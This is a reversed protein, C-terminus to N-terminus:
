KPTLKILLISLPAFIFCPTWAAWFPSFGAHTAFVQSIQMLMVFSFTIVLGLLIHLGTGQRSKRSSVCLGVITLIVTAFPFAIRRHKEFEYTNVALSGKEREQKIFKRIEIYNMMTWDEKVYIFDSVDIALSTDMKEGYEIRENKGYIYRKVYDLLQWNKSVTDWVITKSSLKFKMGDDSMAEYWFNYGLQNVNDWYHVYVYTNPAIKLHTDVDKSHVQRSFYREKFMMLNKQTHPILFNTLYFSFLGIFVASVIYPLMLRYFSMGGNLMAIIESHRSLKSTFYIVAIFVFLPCILNLMYPIYNFYYGFIIDFVPIQQDLFEQINEAIDIVMILIVTLGLVGFFNGIFKRVIYWDLLKIKLPLQM